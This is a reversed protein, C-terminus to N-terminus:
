GIATVSLPPRTSTAPPSDCKMGMSAHCSNSGAVDVNTARPLIGNARDFAANTGSAAFAARSAPPVPPVGPSNAPRESARTNAGCAFPPVHVLPRSHLLPNQVSPTQQATALQPAPDVHAPLALGPTQVFRLATDHVVLESHALPNQTSETHQSLAHLPCHAAHSTGPFTPFHLGTRPAGCPLRVAHAAVGVSHPGVHSPVSV